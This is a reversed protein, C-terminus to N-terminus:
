EQTREGVEAIFKGIEDWAEGAEPLQPYFFQWVHVM